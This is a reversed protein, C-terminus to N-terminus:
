NSDFIREIEEIRPKIKFDNARIQAQKQYEHYLSKDDLIRKLGQYLDDENNEVILGYKSEGLLETMGSCNTTVIPIGLITAETAVTSFGEARSSCVFLDAQLMYKYPNSQFGLLKVTEHLINDDIYKKLEKEQSGQGVILLEYDYGEKILNNHIRLLRDYGKAEVLRGVTIITFKKKQWNDIKESSCKVINVEDVPNYLTQVRNNKMKREFADRTADSVCFCRDFVQYSDIEEQLNKFFRKTWHNKELDTHIWTYKQSKKNPSNAIMKVASGELFAIEIDYDGKIFIKYQLKAPLKRVLNRCHKRLRNSIKHIITKGTKLDKFFSKYKAYQEIESSYVNGDHTKIVTIDYKTKDLNKVIDVLVKEAGGGTLSYIVFLIKTM